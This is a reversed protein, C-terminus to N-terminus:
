KKGDSPPPSILREGGRLINLPDWWAPKETKKEQVKGSDEPKGEKPSGPPTEGSPGPRTRDPATAQEGPKKPVFIIKGWRHGRKDYSYLVISDGEQCKVWWEDFEPRYQVDLIKGTTPVEYMNVFDKKKEVASVEWPMGVVFLVLSILAFTRIM